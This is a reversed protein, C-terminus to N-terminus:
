NSLVNRNQFFEQRSRWRSGSPKESAWTTPRIRAKIWAPNDCEGVRGLMGSCVLVGAFVRVGILEFVGTGGIDQFRIM